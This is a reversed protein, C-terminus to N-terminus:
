RTGKRKKTIYSIKTKSTNYYSNKMSKEEEEELM